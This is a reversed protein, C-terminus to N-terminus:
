SHSRRRRRQSCSPERCGMSPRGATYKDFDADSAVAEVFSPIHGLAFQKLAKAKREYNYDLVIKRKNTPNKKPRPKFLKITPTGKIEGLLRPPRGGQQTDWYAVKVTGKM